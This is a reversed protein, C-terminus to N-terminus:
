NFVSPLLEIIEEEIDVEWITLDNESLFENISELFDKDKDYEMSDIQNYDEDLLIISEILENDGYAVDLKKM